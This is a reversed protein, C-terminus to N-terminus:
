VKRAAAWAVASELDLNHGAYAKRLLPDPLAWDWKECQLNQADALLLELPPIPNDAIATLATGIDTPAYPNKQVEVGPGAATATLGQLRLLAALAENGADGLWTLIVVESGLDILYQTDLDARRYFARAEALFRKAVNDLFIPVETSALLERARARVRQHMRGVGGTFMPPAGGSKRTVVILKQKDDVEDVRWTKGAFLIRQGITLAQTVPLSGLTKGGAVIRFEEETGFAAYFSYHNVFREGVTGHLLEGGSDQVVLDKAGLNRVLDLFETKTVGQFPGNPGCLTEFLQAVSVGGHQAVLSLIQQVLTSYHVERPRPPEFWNELLLQVMAILQITEFRLHDMLASSETLEDEICYGRLIAFEGPRRGSRGLRQRLSAVSAPKGIQAVCKIDGIDIGLELTNTCVASAPRNKQKLAAETESRIDKSLSGHHPWFENPIGEKECLKGLLHTYREVERRSNPFILNNSGQLANFIHAAVYAPSTPDPAYEEARPPHVVAPEEYGKVVIKLGTGAEKSEVILVDAGHAPRMFEAALRMDGLTASLGIRPIPSKHALDIRHMLAQLQKGRESGIFAHLEDIVFFQTNQFITSVTTGKNCLLAELSEPTILLIGRKQELFRKKFTATVDGHWPWVPVQLDDCLLQLRGLQDNILAKLPSVYVILGPTKSQLLRTLAPFFAAETKGAATAAAVIVDREGALIPPAALEQAERLASWGQAWIFRQIRADLLHFASSPTTM